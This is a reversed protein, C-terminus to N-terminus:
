IRAKGRGGRGESTKKETIRVEYAPAGLASASGSLAPSASSLWSLGDDLETSALESSELESSDLSSSESTSFFSRVEKKIVKNKKNYIRIPQAQEFDASNQM